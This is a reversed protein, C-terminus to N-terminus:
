KKRRVSKKKAARKYGARSSMDKFTSVNRLARNSKEAARREAPTMKKKAVGQAKKVLKKRSSEDYFGVKRTKREAARSPVPDAGKAKVKKRTSTAKKAHAATSKARGVLAKKRKPSKIAPKKKKAAM